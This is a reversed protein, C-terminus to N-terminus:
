RLFGDLTLDSQGFALRVEAGKKWVVYCTEGFSDTVCLKQERIMWSGTHKKGMSTGEIVGGAKYTYAFHVDDTFRKGTFAQRVQAPNLMEFGEKKLKGDEPSAAFAPIACVLVSLTALRLISKM